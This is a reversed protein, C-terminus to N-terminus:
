DKNHRYLKIQLRQIEEVPLNMIMEITEKDVQYYCMLRGYLKEFAGTAVRLEDWTYEDYDFDDKVPFNILEGM